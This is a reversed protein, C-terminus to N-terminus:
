GGFTIVWFAQGGYDGDLVLGTNPNTEENVFLYWYFYWDSGPEANEAVGSIGSADGLSGEVAEILGAHTFSLGFESLGDQIEGPTQGGGTSADYGVDDMTGVDMLAMQLFDGWTTDTMPQTMANGFDSNSDELLGPDCHDPDAAPNSVDVASGPSFSVYGGCAECDNIFAFFEATGDLQIHQECNRVGNDIDVWYVFTYDIFVEAEDGSSIATLAFSFTLGDFDFEPATDDDDDDDDDDDSPPTVDDDDPPPTADDDDNDDDDVTDDDDVPQDADDGRRERSRTPSCAFALALLFTLAVPVARRISM